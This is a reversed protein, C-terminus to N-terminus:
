EKWEALIQEALYDCPPRRSRASRALVVEVDDLLPLGEAQSLRVLRRPISCRALPAIALLVPFRM